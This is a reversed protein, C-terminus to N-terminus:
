WSLIHWGELIMGSQISIALNLMILSSFWVNEASIDKILAEAFSNAVNNLM